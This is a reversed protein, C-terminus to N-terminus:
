SKNRAIMATYMREHALANIRDREMADRGLQEIKPIVKNELTKDIHEAKTICDEAVIELTDIRKRTKRRDVWWLRVGTFMSAGIVALPPWLHELLVLFRHPVAEM